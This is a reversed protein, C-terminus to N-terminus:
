IVIHAWHRRMWLMMFISSSLLRQVLQIWWIGILGFGLVPGVLYALPLFFIWQTLISVKMVNRNAGAGLLAQTLVIGVADICIGLGTMQLPLRGIDILHQDRLFISLVLDPFLWMPTGLLFLIIVALKIVEIGWRYASEKNNAGLSESVLTTAAMGLGVGPLILFLALNILVHAVALEQKGVLGIIWFLVAFGIAFFFQQLSNPVSLRLISLLNERKPLGHLFGHSKAHKLTLFFYFITGIYLALSTGVGAGTAGMEPLGFAGFIFGYSLIVNSAHMLVLTHLYTISRNIGNWYGRFSFNLGLAVIGFLRAEFYPIATTTVDPDSNLLNIIIDASFFFLLTLPTGIVLAILLGGNLPFAAQSTQGQGIRRAVLAQVGSSLGMMLAMAMFTAYGGIGVGALSTGGLAGVMATDVLNLLSQSLMGGIIPLGLFLIRKRRQTEM